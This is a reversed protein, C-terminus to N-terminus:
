FALLPVLAVILLVGPSIVQVALEIAAVGFLREVGNHVLVGAVVVAM